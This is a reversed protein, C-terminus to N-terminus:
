KTKFALGVLVESNVTVNDDPRENAPVFEIESEFYFDAPDARDIIREAYVGGYDMAEVEHGDARIRVKYWTTSSKRVHPLRAAKKELDRNLALKRGEPTLQYSVGAPYAYDILKRIALGDCADDFNGKDPWHYFSSKVISESVHADIESLTLPGNTYIADIVLNELDGQPITVNPAGRSM